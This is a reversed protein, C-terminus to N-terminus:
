RARPTAIMAGAAGREADAFEHDVLKYVGAEPVIFEMVASNSAGLLVTQMGRWENEVNGEYWVRDLIAGIVHFSSTGSPGANLVYLRVRDGEQVRLPSDVLANVHGNFVVHSADRAMAAQHNYIYTDGAQELYFESQVIVFEHDVKDDTPFGNRPSVVVAGYQGMATHMLVSPTGCHYMYVGPYNAVWEFRITEGPAITRWKDDAAVTGSHFDMSHPMPSTSPRNKQYLNSQLQDYFPGMGKVPHTVVVEEDSRNKMTFVVRDGERVHLTPGPVTGGYTWANFSVGPAVEVIQSFTDIRVEHTKNGKYDLPKLFPLATVYDGVVPPGAYDETFVEAEALGFIKGDIMFEGEKLQTTPAQSCGAIFIALLVSGAM